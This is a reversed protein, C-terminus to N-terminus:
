ATRAQRQYGVFGLMVLLATGFLVLSAPIPTTAVLAFGVSGSYAYASGGTLYSIEYDGAHLLQSLSSLVPAGLHQDDAYTVFTNTNYLLVDLYTLPDGNGPNSSFHSTLTADQDLHFAYEIDTPNRSDGTTIGLFPVSLNSTIAGLDTYIVGTAPIPSANARSALVLPLALILGLCLGGSLRNMIIGRILLDIDGQNLIFDGSIRTFRSEDNVDYSDV